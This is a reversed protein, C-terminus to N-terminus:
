KGGERWSRLYDVVFMVASVLLLSSGWLTVYESDKPSSGRSLVGVSTMVAGAVMVLGWAILRNGAM